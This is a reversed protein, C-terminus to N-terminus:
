AYHATVYEHVAYEEEWDISRGDPGPVNRRPDNWGSPYELEAVKRLLHCAACGPRCCKCGYAAGEAETTKEHPCDSSRCYNTGEVPGAWQDLQVEVRRQNEKRKAWDWYELWLQGYAARFEKLWKKRRELAQQRAGPESNWGLQGQPSYSDLAQQWALTWMTVERTFPRALFPTPSHLSIYDLCSRWEHLLYGPYEWRHTHAAEVRNAARCVAARWPDLPVQYVKKHLAASSGWPKIPVVQHFHREDEALAALEMGEMPPWPPDCYEGVRHRDRLRQWDLDQGWSTPQTYWDLWLRTINLPRPHGRVLAAFCATTVDNWGEGPGALQRVFPNRRFRCPPTIFRLNHDTPVLIICYGEKCRPCGDSPRGRLFSWKGTNTCLYLPPRNALGICSMYARFPGGRAAEAETPYVQVARSSGHGM